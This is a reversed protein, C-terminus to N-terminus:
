PGPLFVNQAQITYLKFDWLGIKFDKLFQM